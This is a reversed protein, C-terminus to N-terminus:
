GGRVMTKKMSKRILAGVASRVRAQSHFLASHGVLDSERAPFATPPSSTAPIQVPNPRREDLRAIRRSLQPLCPGAWPNLSARVLDRLLFPEYVDHTSRGVVDGVSARSDLAFELAFEVRRTGIRGGGALLRFVGLGLRVM